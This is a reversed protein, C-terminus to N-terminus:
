SLALEIERSRAYEMWQKKANLMGQLANKCEEPTSYRIIDNKSM